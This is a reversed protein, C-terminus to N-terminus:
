DVQYLRIKSDRLVAVRKGSPSLAASTYAPGDIRRIIRGSSVDFLVVRSFGFIGDFMGDSYWHTGNCVALFRRPEVASLQGYCDGGNRGLFDESSVPSSVGDAGHRRLIGNDFSWTEKAGVRWSAEVGSGALHTYPNEGYPTAAKSSSVREAPWDRYFDCVQQAGAVSCLAFESDLAPSPALTIGCSKSGNPCDLSQKPRLQADLLEIKGWGLGAITGRPGNSFSILDDRRATWQVSGATDFVALETASRSPPLADSCRAGWLGVAFHQEDLWIVRSIMGYRWECQPAAIKIKNLDITDFPKPSQAALLSSLSIGLGFISALIKM